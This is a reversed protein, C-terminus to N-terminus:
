HSSGVKKPELEICCQIPPPPSPPLFVLLLLVEELRLYIRVAESDIDLNFPQDPPSSQLKPNLAPEFFFTKRFRDYPLPAVKQPLYGSAEALQNRVRAAFKAGESAAGDVAYTDHSRDNQYRRSWFDVGGEAM